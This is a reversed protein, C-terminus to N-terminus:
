APDRQACGEHASGRRRFELVYSWCKDRAIEGSAQFAKAKFGAYRGIQKARQVCAEACIKSDLMSSPMTPLSESALVFCFMNRSDDSGFREISEVAKQTFDTMRVVLSPLLYRPFKALKRYSDGWQDSDDDKAKKDQLAYALAAM